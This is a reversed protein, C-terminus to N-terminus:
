GSKRPLGSKAPKMSAAKVSPTKVAKVFPGTNIGKSAGRTSNKGAKNGTMTCKAM